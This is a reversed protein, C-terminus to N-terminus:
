EATNTSRGSTGTDEANLSTGFFSSASALARSIAAAAGRLLPAIRESAIPAGGLGIGSAAMTPEARTPIELFFKTRRDM